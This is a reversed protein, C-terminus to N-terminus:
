SLSRPSDRNVFRVVAICSFTILLLVLALAYRAATGQPNIALQNVGDTITVTMTTTPSLLAQAGSTAFPPLSNVDGIVLAVALAEGMARALGLVIGSIITARAAPLLVGRITQWRTAGLALSAEKLARPVARLGDASLSAITPVIMISLVVGAALVGSGQRGPPALHELLPLLAVFGLYGYVVSPIGVFLEVAPRVVRAGVVPDTEELIIATALALPVAIVLALAVVMLSGLIPTLAGFDADGGFGGGSGDPAWRTSGFFGALGPTHLVPAAKSALFVVVLVVVLVSLAAAGLVVRGMVADVRAAGLRRRRAAAGGPPAAGWRPPPALGEQSM